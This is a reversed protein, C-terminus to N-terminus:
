GMRWNNHWLVTELNTFMQKINGKSSSYEKQLSLLPCPLIKSHGTLSPICLAGGDMSTPDGRLKSCKQGVIDLVPVWSIVSLVIHVYYICLWILPLPSGANNMVWATSTGLFKLGRRWWPGKRRGDQLSGGRPASSLWSARRYPKCRYDRHSAKRHQTTLIQTHPQM